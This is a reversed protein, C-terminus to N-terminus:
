QDLVVSVLLGASCDPSFFMEIEFQDPRFRTETSGVRVALVETEGPWITAQGAADTIADQTWGSFSQSAVKVDPVPAGSRDVITFRVAGRTGGSQNSVRMGPASFEARLCTWWFGGCCGIVSIAPVVVALVLALRRLRRRRQRVM